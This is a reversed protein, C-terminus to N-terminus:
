DFFGPSRSIKLQALTWLTYRQAQMSDGGWVKLKARWNGELEVIPLDKSQGLILYSLKRWWLRDMVEEETFWIHLYHISKWAISFTDGWWKPVPESTSSLTGRMRMLSKEVEFSEMSGRWVELNVVRKKGRALNDLMLGPSAGAGFHRQWVVRETAAQTQPGHWMFQSNDDSTPYLFLPGDHKMVRLALNNSCRSMGVLLSAAVCGFLM